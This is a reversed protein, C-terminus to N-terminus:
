GSGNSVNPKIQLVLLDTSLRRDFSLAGKRFLDRERDLDLSRALALLDSELSLCLDLHGVLGM